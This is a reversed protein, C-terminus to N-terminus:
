DGLRFNFMESYYEVWKTSNEEEIEISTAIKAASM